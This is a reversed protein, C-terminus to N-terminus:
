NIIRIKLNFQKAAQVSEWPRAYTLHLEAAGNQLATFRFLQRGGQGVIHQNNEQSIYAEGLFSLIQRDYDNSLNWRYGTTPNSDLSLTFSQGPHLTLEQDNYNEDIQMLETCRVLIRALESRKVPDSPRFCDGNGTMIGTNNVFVMANSEEQTLGQTDKFIPMSMIMPISIHKAQFSREIAQALRIRNVTGMPAFQKNSEFVQNIACMVLADSYWEQDKVDGFYDSALPQKIFRKDGYDLQFTRQLAVALQANGVMADPSFLREGAQNTGIGCMLGLQACAQIEQQAWHGKIDAFDGTTAATAASPFYFLVMVLLLCSLFKKM